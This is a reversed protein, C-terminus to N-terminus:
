LLIRWKLLMRMFQGDCMCYLLIMSNFLFWSIGVYISNNEMQNIYDFCLVQFSYINIIM